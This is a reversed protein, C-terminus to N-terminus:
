SAMDSDNNKNEDEDKDEDEGLSDKSGTIGANEGDIYTNAKNDDEHDTTSGTEKSEEFSASPQQTQTPATTPPQKTQPKTEPPQKAAQNESVPLIDETIEPSSSPEELLISPGSDPSIAPGSDPMNNGDNEVFPPTNNGFLIAVYGAIVLVHALGLSVILIGWVTKNKIAM